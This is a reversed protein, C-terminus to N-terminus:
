WGKVDKVFVNHGFCIILDVKVNPLDCAGFNSGFWILTVANTEKEIKQVLENAKPKLGDPLQLLVSKCKNKKITGIIKEEELDYM